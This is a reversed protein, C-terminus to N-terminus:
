EGDLGELGLGVFVSFKFLSFKSINGQVLVTNKKKYVFNCGKLFIFFFFFSIFTLLM